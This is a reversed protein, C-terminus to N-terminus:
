VTVVLQPVPVAVWATVTFAGGTAAAIVPTTGKQTPFVIVSLSAVAPPTQAVAFEAIAETSPEPLTVPTDPPM